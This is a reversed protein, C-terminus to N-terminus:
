IQENNIEKMKKNVQALSSVVLWLLILSSFILNIWVVMKNYRKREGFLQGFGLEIANQDYDDFQYPLNYWDCLNNINRINIM